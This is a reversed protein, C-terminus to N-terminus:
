NAALRRGPPLDQGVSFSAPLRAHLHRRQQWLRAALWHRMFIWLQDRGRDGAARLQRAFRENNAYVSNAQATLERVWRRPLPEHLWVAVEECVAEAIARPVLPTEQELRRPRPAAIRGHIMEDIIM